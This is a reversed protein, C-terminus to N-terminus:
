SKNMIDALDAFPKHTESQQSQEGSGANIGCNYEHFSTFPLCLLLEDEIFQYTNLIGEEAIIPDLERPVQQAAEDHAVLVAEVKSDIALPMPQLCRQCLIQVDCSVEAAVRRRGQDDIAFRLQVSAEGESSTLAAALRPLKSVAITGSLEANRSALQQTVVTSPLCQDSM